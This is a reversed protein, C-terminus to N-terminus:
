EHSCIYDYTKLKGKYICKFAYWYIMYDERIMDIVVEDKGHEIIFDLVKKTESLDTKVNIMENSLSEVLETLKKIDKKKM